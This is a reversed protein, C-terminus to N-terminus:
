NCWQCCLFHSFKVCSIAKQIFFIFPFRGLRCFMERKIDNGICIESLSDRYYTINNDNKKNSVIYNINARPILYQIQNSKSSTSYRTLALFISLNLSITLVYSVITNIHFLFLQLILILSPIWHWEKEPESSYLDSYSLHVFYRLFTNM